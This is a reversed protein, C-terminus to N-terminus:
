PFMYNNAFFFNHGFAAHAITLAQMTMTNEEMLYVICPIPTSSSGAPSVWTARRYRDWQAAFGEQVVLAQLLDAHRRQKLCRGDAGSTIIELQKKCCRGLKLVRRRGEESFRRM